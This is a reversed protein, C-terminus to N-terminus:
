DLKASICRRFVFKPHGAPRVFHVASRTLNKKIVNPPAKRNQQFSIKTLQHFLHQHHNRNAFVAHWTKFIVGRGWVDNLCLAACKSDKFTKWVIKKAECKIFHFVSCPKWKLKHEIRLSGKNRATKSNSIFMVAAFHKWVRIETWLINLNWELDTGGKVSGGLLWWASNQPSMNQFILKGDSTLFTESEYICESFPIKKKLILIGNIVKGSDGRFQSCLKEGGSLHYIVQLNTYRLHYVFNRGEFWDLCEFIECIKIIFHVSVEILSM